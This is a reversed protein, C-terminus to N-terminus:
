MAAPCPREESVSFAGAYGLRGRDGRRARGLPDNPADAGTASRLSPTARGYTRWRRRERMRITASTANGRRFHEGIIKCQRM